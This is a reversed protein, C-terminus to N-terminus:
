PEHKGNVKGSWIDRPKEFLWKTLCSVTNFNEFDM